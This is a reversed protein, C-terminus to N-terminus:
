AHAGVQDAIEAIAHFREHHAERSEKAKKMLQEAAEWQDDAQRTRKDLM